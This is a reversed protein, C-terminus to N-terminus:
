DFVFTGLFPLLFHPVKKRKTKKTKPPLRLKPIWFKKNKGLFNVFALLPSLYHLLVGKVLFGDDNLNLHLVLTLWLSSRAVHSGACSTITAPHIFATGM